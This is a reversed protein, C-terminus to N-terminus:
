PSAGTTGPRGPAFARPSRASTPSTTSAPASGTTSPPSWEIVSGFTRATAARRGRQDEVEVRVRVRAGLHEADLAGVARRHEAEDFGAVDVGRAVRLDPQAAVPRGLLLERPLPVPIELKKMCSTRSRPMRSTIWSASATTPPPGTKTVTSMSTSSGANAGAGARGLRSPHRRDVEEPRHALGRRPELEDARVEDLHDRRRDARRVDSREDALADDALQERTESKLTVREFPWRTAVWERVAQELVPDLGEDWASQRVWLRLRVDHTESPYLYVCGLM